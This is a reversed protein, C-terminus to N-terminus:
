EAVGGFRVNGYRDVIVVWSVAAGKSLGKLAEDFEALDDADSSAPKVKTYGGDGDQDAVKAFLFPYATGDGDSPTFTGSKHGLYSGVLVM